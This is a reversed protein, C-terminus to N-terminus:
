HPALDRLFLNAPFACGYLVFKSVIPSDILFHRSAGQLSTVYIICIMTDSLQATSLGASRYVSM